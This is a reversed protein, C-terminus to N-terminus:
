KLIVCGMFTQEVPGESYDYILKSRRRKVKPISCWAHNLIYSGKNSSLIPYPYLDESKIHYQQKLHNLKLAKFNQEKRACHVCVRMTPISAWM